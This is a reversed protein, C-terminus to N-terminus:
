RDKAADPDISLDVQPDNAEPASRAYEPDSGQEPVDENVVVSSAGAPDPRAGFQQAGPQRGFLSRATMAPVPDSGQDSKRRIVPIRHTGHLFGEAQDDTLTVTEGRHVISARPEGKPDRTKQPVSLNTLAIWESGRPAAVPM